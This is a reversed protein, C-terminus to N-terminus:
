DLDKNQGDDVLKIIAAANNSFAIQPTSGCINSNRYIYASDEKTRGFYVGFKFATSGIIRGLGDLDREIRRCFNHEGIGIVFDDIGIKAIKNINFHKTFTTRKNYLEKRSDLIDDIRKTFDAQAHRLDLLNM